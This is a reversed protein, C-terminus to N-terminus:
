FEQHVGADAGVIYRLHSRGEHNIAGQLTLTVDVVRVVGGVHWPTATLHCGNITAEINSLKLRAVDCAIDRAADLAAGLGADLGADVEM